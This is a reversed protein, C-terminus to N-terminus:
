TQDKLVFLMLKKETADNNGRRKVKSANNVDSKIM